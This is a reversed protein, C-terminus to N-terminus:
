INKLKSTYAFADKGIRILSNSLTIQTLNECSYFAEKEIISVNDSMKVSIINDNDYFVKEKITTIEEPLIIHTDEGLYAILENNEIIFDDSTAKIPSIPLVINLILLFSLLKKM